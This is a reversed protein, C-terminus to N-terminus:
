SNCGVGGTRRDGKKRQHLRVAGLADVSGMGEFEPKAFKLVIPGPNEGWFLKLLPTLNITFPLYPLQFQGFAIRNHM